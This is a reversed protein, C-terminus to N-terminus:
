AIKVPNQNPKKKYIHIAYGDMPNRRLYEKLYNETAVTSNRIIYQWVPEFRGHIKETLDMSIFGGFEVDFGALYNEAYHQFMDSHNVNVNPDPEFFLRLLTM